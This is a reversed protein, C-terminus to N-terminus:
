SLTANSVNVMSLGIITTSTQAPVTYVSIVTTGVNKAIASTFTNAM